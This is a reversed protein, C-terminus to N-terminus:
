ADISAEFHLGAVTIGGPQFAAVAVVEILRAMLQATEGRKESRFQLIDGNGALLWAYEDRLREWQWDGPGGIKKLDNIALLVGAELTMLLLAENM